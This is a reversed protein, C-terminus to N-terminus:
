TLIRFHTCCGSYKVKLVYHSKLNLFDREILISILLELFFDLSYKLVHLLFTFDIICYSLFEYSSTSVRVRFAVRPLRSNLRLPAPSVVPFNFLLVSKTSSLFSLAFPPSSFSAGSPALDGSLKGREEGQRDEEREREGVFRKEEETQGRMAPPGGRRLVTRRGSRKGKREKGNETQFYNM